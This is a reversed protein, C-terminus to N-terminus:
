MKPRKPGPRGSSRRSGPRPQEPRPSPPTAPPQEPATALRQLEAVDALDKPRGAAQKMAILDELSAVRLTGAPGTDIVMASDILDRYSITTGGPGKAGLLVDVRGARTEWRTNFGRLDDHDPAPGSATRAGLSGLAQALRHLNDLDGRAVIDVDRTPRASGHLLAANGGVLVYAVDRRDLAALIAALDYDGAPDPQDPGSM